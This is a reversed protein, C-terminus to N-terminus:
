RIRLPVTHTIFNVLLDQHFQIVAWKHLDEQSRCIIVLHDREIILNIRHSITQPLLRSDVM